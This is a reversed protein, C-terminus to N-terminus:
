QVRTLLGWHQQVFFTAHTLNRFTKKEELLTKKEEFAVTKKM